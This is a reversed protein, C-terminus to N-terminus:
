NSFFRLKGTVIQLHSFTLTRKLFETFRDEQERDAPDFKDLAKLIDSSQLEVFSLNKELQNRINAVTSKKLSDVDIPEGTKSDRVKSYNLSNKVTDGIGKLQNIVPSIENMDIGLIQLSQDRMEIEEPTKPSQLVELSRSMGMEGTKTNHSSLYTKIANPIGGTSTLIAAQDQDFGQEMLKQMAEQPSSFYEMTDAKQGIGTGGGVHDIRQAGRFRTSKSISMIKTYIGSLRGGFKEGIQKHLEYEELNDQELGEMGADVAGIYGSWFELSHM